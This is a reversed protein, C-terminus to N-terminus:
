KAATSAAGLLSVDLLRIERVAVQARGEAAFPCNAQADAQAGALCCDDLYSFM